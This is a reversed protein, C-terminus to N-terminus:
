SFHLLAFSVYTHQLGSASHVRAVTSDWREVNKGERRGGVTFATSAQELSSFKRHDVM